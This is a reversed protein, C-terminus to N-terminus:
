VVCACRRADLGEAGVGWLSMGFAAEESGVEGPLGVQVGRFGAPQQYRDQDGASSSSSEGGGSGKSSGGGRGVSSGGDISLLSEGCDEGEEEGKEEGELEGGIEGRVRGRGIGIDVDPPKSDGRLDVAGGARVGGEDGSLRVTSCLRVGRWFLAM